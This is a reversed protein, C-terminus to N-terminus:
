PPAPGEPRPAALRRVVLADLSLPGAGVLLLFLSGLLMSLDTRAEHLMSWLGHRSASPGAFMWYGHGLLVPVKTSALAGLMVTVLPIAALRTLLGGLVLLGCTIEVAGVLPGFIEPAPLGIKAFRGAGVTDPYLLKQAGESAFVVGVAVRVLVAARPASTELLGPFVRSGGSGREGSM